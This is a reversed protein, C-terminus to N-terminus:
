RRLTGLFAGANEGDATVVSKFTMSNTGALKLTITEVMKKGHDTWAYSAKMTRASIWHALHDHADGTNTVAYWHGEGSVPDVGFLDSETMAMQSNRTVSNCSVAWGSSVKTCDLQMTLKVPAQGPESLRAQGTWHGVMPYYRAAAPLQPKTTAASAPAALPGAMILIFPFAALIKM